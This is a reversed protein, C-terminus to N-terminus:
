RAGVEVLFFSHYPMIDLKIQTFLVDDTNHKMNKTNAKRIDGTQPDWEELNMKGRLMVSTEVSSRGINAFYYVNRGDIVKHIYQLEPSLPYNVDFDKVTKQLVDRLIQGDPHSIFFAKGGNQNSKMSGADKEGGPFIARVMSKLEDDKGIEASKSPLRTTFIVAGGSIYFDAIKKMGSISITKCSPVIIVRYDEYNEQNQLHLKRDIVSCKEDIVEPHLFTFDKGATNTLWNAIKIYDIDKVAERYFENSPDVPGDVNSPGTRDDFYHEGLLSVIPYVVAIDAVHRGNNQLMVNLRSLFKTFYKLSDAYLPNRHSLEPKYTVKTNDYWVAHPILMNIGKTYQDMAISDIQSWTLDGPKDYDPMAGFTEAMVLKKDWNYASSSVLKYFREAPRSGGIKDIGPIELYKFSKMLDGASNAPDLAEEPATHGTATIGHSVSWENIVRNFGEAYLEARFGFLYNRAAETDAGINYWMAPYLSVPSFGFRKLFKENFESTWMRFQAHFMSPEDYFTGWIVNGFYERFHTYYVDHVMATFKRAAEPNLYDAIPVGDTVCNFIMIKWTGSPVDCELIGDIIRDSLDIRSIGREDMAVAGMFKGDPVKKRYTLPGTIEDESKDLREITLDPYKQQFRPTDDGEAFAGVSGSPFGFEDYLSIQMGLERAKELMRGYVTLYDESLYEPRFNKGFPVVGFGGYGCKYRMAEMLQLVGEATVETNNWFWLPRPWYQIPPNKFKEPTFTQGNSNFPQILISIASLIVVSYLLKKM